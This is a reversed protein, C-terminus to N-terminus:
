FLNSTRGVYYKKNTNKDVYVDLTDERGLYKFNDPIKDADFRQLNASLSKKADWGIPVAFELSEDGIERCILIDVADFKFGVMECWNCYELFKREQDVVVM